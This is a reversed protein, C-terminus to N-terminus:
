QQYYHAMLKLSFGFTDKEGQSPNSQGLNATAGAGGATKKASPPSIQMGTVEILRSSREVIGLFDKFSEYTGELDVSMEMKQMTLVSASGSLTEKASNKGSYQYKKLLLGSQSSSAQLFNALTPAQASTPLAASIKAMPEAYQQLEDATKRLSAFYAERSELDAQKDSVKQEVDLFENYKPVVLLMAFTATVILIVILELINKSM